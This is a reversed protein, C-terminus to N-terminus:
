CLNIELHTVMVGNSKLIEVGKDCRYTEAYYVHTIGADLLETACFECPAHTIFIVAGVSSENSRMIKKLANIESHVVQPKTNGNEDELSGEMHSPLGNYGEAIVGGHPRAIICGVKLRVGESCEAFAYASKMYAIKHKLKM